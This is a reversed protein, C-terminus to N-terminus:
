RHRPDHQGFTPLDPRFMAWTTFASAVPASGLVRYGFGQYLSVNSEVETTLSVGASTPDAASWAHLHDLLRVGLGRGQHHRRVGIMNLHLRDVSVSFRGAVEGFAEYRGQAEAGLDAWTEERLKALRRPTPLSGPRSALAAAALGGQEAIGLILEGRLLRAMVFFTVLTRLRAEYEPENGLVFRMVPYDHFAESLVSVVAPVDDAALISPGNTSPQTM